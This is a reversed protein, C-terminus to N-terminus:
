QVAGKREAAALGAELAQLDEFSRCWEGHFFVYYDGELQIFSHLADILESLAPEGTGAKLVFTGLLTTLDRHARMALALTGSGVREALTLPADYDEPPSMARYRAAAERVLEAPKPEQCDNRKM